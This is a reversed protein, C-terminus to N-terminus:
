KTSTGPNVSVTEVPATAPFARWAAASPLCLKEALFGGADPAADALTFDCQDTGQLLTKVKRNTFSYTSVSVPGCPDYDCNRHHSDPSMSSFLVEADGNWLLGPKEEAQYYEVRGLAKLGPYTYFFWSRVLWTGSDMALVTNGPSLRVESCFEAADTPIFGAAEGRVNFLYLGAAMGYPKGSEGGVGCFSLMSTQVGAADLVPMVPFIHPPLVTSTGQAALVLNGDSLQLVPAAQSFAAWLLLITPMLVVSIKM